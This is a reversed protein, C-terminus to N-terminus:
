PDRWVGEEHGLATYFVGWDRILADLGAAVWISASACQASYSEVSTPDLRLLM